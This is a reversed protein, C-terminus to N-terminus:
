ALNDLALHTRDFNHRKCYENWADTFRADNYEDIWRYMRPAPERGSSIATFYADSHRLLMSRLQELREVTVAGRRTKITM